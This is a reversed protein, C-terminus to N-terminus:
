AIGIGDVNQLILHQNEFPIPGVIGTLVADVDLLLDQGVQRVNQDADDIRQDRNSDFDRRYVGNRENSGFVGITFADEADFHGVRVTGFGFGTERVNTYLELGDRDQDDGFDVFDGNGVGTFGDQGTGGWLNETSGSTVSGYFRDNGRGGNAVTRDGVEGSVTLQDDGGRGEIRDSGGEGSFINARNNGVFVDAGQSGDIIEVNRFRDVEEGQVARSLDANDAAMRIQVGVTQDRYILSDEGAGGDYHDDGDPGDATDYLYNNGSGGFVRDDGAGGVLMDLDGGEGYLRDDGAGGWIEDSESGGYVIDDGGEGYLTDYGALGFISDTSDTGRLTDGAATGRIVAM